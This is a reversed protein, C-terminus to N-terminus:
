DTTETDTEAAAPQPTKPVEWYRLVREAINKFVPASVVGGFYAPHPQDFVVAMVLRPKEVPAFGIFSAIFKSHSYRGNEVKQATGTKGAASYGELRGMKATGREVVGQLILRMTQATAESIVTTGPDPEMQRVLGGQADTIMSVVRPRVLRGGNAIVALARAMQLATVGIEQGMPIATISLKSWQSLPSVMGSTEGPVDIGTLQGFGFKEVYAALREPGLRQAIKVTGINSSKEIVEVFTLNGHPKHDHLTHNGVRYAGNECFFKEDLRVIQEELAASATVIKFTSGPEFFDCVVRNRRSDEDSQALRNLDYGPRSALAYIDGTFPDMVVVMAAQAHNLPLARDIEEEVIHQIVQDITLVLNNGDVAPTYEYEFAPLMRQKADRLLVRRGPTGQLFADYQRELGELGMEDVGAFGVVHAALRSNPYFRKSEDLMGVGPMNLQTVADAEATTVRRKVWMFANDKALRQQLLSGDVQLGAALLRATREKDVIVRPEAYVSSVRLSLAMMKMMRDYIIGRQPALTLTLQHQSDALTSYDQRNIVQISLLRFFVATFLSLYIFSVSLLRVKQARKYM